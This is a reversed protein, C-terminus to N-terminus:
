CWCKKNKCFYRGFVGPINRWHQWDTVTQAVSDDSWLSSLNFLAPKRRHLWWYQIFLEPQCRVGTNIRVKVYVESLKLEVFFFCCRLTSNIVDTQLKSSTRGSYKFHRCALRPLIECPILNLPDMKMQEPFPGPTVVISRLSQVIAATWPLRPSYIMVVTSPPSMSALWHCLLSDHLAVQMRSYTQYIVHHKIAGTFLTGKM